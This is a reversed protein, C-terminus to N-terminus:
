LILKEEIRELNDIVRKCKQEKLSRKEVIKCSCTFIKKVKQHLENEKANFDVKHRKAKMGKGVHRLVEQILITLVIITCFYGGQERLINKGM